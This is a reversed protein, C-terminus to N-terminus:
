RPERRRNARFSLRHPLECLLLLSVDSSDGLFSVLVSIERVSRRNDIPASGFNALEISWRLLGNRHTKIGVDDCPEFGIAATVLGFRIPKQSLGHSMERFSRSGRATLSTGSLRALALLTGSSQPGLLKRLAIAQRQDRTPPMTTVPWPQVRSQRPATCRTGSTGLFHSDPTRETSEWRRLRDAMSTPIRPASTCAGNTPVLAAKRFSASLTGSTVSASLRATSRRPTYPATTELV